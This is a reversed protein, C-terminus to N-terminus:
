QFPAATIRSVQKQRLATKKPIATGESGSYTCGFEVLETTIKLTPPNKECIPNFGPLETVQILENQDAEGPNQAKHIRILELRTWRDKPGSKDDSCNASDFTVSRYVLITNPSEDYALNSDAATPNRSIVTEYSMLNKDFFFRPTSFSARLKLPSGIPKAYCQFKDRLEYSMAILGLNKAVEVLADAVTDLLERGTAFAGVRENDTVYHGLYSVKHTTEHSLLFLITAPAAAKISDRHFEIAGKPGLGTRAPFERPKGDPGVAILPKESIVYPIKAFGENLSLVQNATAFFFERCTEIQEVPLQPKVCFKASEEPKNLVGRITSLLAYRTAELFHYLPDGGNGIVSGGGEFRAFSLSSGMIVISFFLWRSFRKM